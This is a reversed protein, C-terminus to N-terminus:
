LTRRNEASRLIHKISLNCYQM